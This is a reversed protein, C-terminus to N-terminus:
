KSPFVDSNQCWQENFISSNFPFRVTKTSSRFCKQALFLKCLDSAAM